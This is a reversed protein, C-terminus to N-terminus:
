PHAANQEEFWTDGPIGSAGDSQGGAGAVFEVDHLRQEVEFVRLKAACTEVVVVECIDGHVLGKLVGELHQEGRAQEREGRVGGRPVGVHLVFRGVNEHEAWLGGAQGDLHKLVRCHGGM